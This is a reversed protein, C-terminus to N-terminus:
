TDNRIGKIGADYFHWTLKFFIFAAASIVYDGLFLICKKLDHCVLYSCNALSDDSGKM